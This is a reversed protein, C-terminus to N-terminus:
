LWELLTPCSPSPITRLNSVHEQLTIVTVYDLTTHDSTLQIHVVTMVDM